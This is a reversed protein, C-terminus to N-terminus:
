VREHIKYDWTRRTAVRLNQVYDCLRKSGLRSKAKRKKEEREGMKGEKKEREDIDSDQRERERKGEKEMITSDLKTM